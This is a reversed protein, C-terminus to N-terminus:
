NQERDYALELAVEVLFRTQQFGRAIRSLLEFVFTFM